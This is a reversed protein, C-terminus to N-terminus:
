SLGVQFPNVIDVLHYFNVVRYTNVGQDVEPETSGLMLEAVAASAAICCGARSSTLSSSALAVLQRFRATGRLSTISWSPRAFSRQKDALLGACWHRGAQGQGARLPRDYPTNNHLSTSRSFNAVPM